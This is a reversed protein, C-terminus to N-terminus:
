LEGGAFSDSIVIAYFVIQRSHGSLQCGIKTRERERSEKVPNKIFPFCSFSFNRYSANILPEQLAEQLYHVMQEFFNFFLFRHRIM